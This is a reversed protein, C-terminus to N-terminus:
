FNIKSIKFNKKFKKSTKLFDGFGKIVLKPYKDDWEYAINFSYNFDNEDQLRIWNKDIFM